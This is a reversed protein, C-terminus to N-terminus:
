GWGSGQGQGYGQGHGQGPSGRGRGRGSCTRSCRWPKASGVLAPPEARSRPSSAAATASGERGDQCVRSPPVLARRLAESCYATSGHGGSASPARGRRGDDESALSALAILLCEAEVALCGWGGVMFTIVSRGGTPLYWGIKDRVGQEAAAAPDSVQSEAYREAAEHRSDM